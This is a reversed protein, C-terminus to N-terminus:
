KWRAGNKSIFRGNRGGSSALKAPCCLLCFASYFALLGPLPRGFVITLQWHCCPLQKTKNQEAAASTSQLLAGARSFRQHEAAASTGV